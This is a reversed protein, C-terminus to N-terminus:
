EGKDEKHALVAKLREIEAQAEQDKTQDKRSQLRRRIIDYLIFGCLPIGIFVLMGIPTQMFLALNGLRPITFLHIGEVQSHEVLNEDAANNADGKTVFAPEKEETESLEIIRHTIVARGDKFSIIEGEQLTGPDLVKTIVLDGGDIEPAMSGTVVVFPKIGFFDPIEEPDLYSKIVITLNMILVPLLVVCILIGIISSLIRGFGRKSRGKM